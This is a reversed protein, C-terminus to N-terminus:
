FFSMWIHTPQHKEIQLHPYTSATCNDHLFLKLLFDRKIVDMLGLTM